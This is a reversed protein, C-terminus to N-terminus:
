AEDPEDTEVGADFEHRVDSLRQGGLRPVRWRKWGNAERGHVHKSAGSPTFFREGTSLTITGDENLTAEFTLGKSPVPDELLEGPELVEEQLLELLGTGEPGSRSSSSEATGRRSSLAGAAIEAFDAIQSDPRHWLQVAREALSASRDVIQEEGWAEEHKFGTHLRLVGHEEIKPRKHGWPGNSLEPNLRDTVLTLNGLSHLLRNRRLTEAMKEEERPLPWAAETWGQPLLHEITLRYRAVHEDETKPSRLDDELAELIM